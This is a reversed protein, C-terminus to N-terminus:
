DEETQEAAQKSVASFESQVGATFLLWTEVHHHRTRPARNSNEHLVVERASELALTHLSPYKCCVHDPAIFDALNEGLHNRYLHDQFM